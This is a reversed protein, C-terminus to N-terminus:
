YGTNAHCPILAFVDGGGTMAKTTHGIERRLSQISVTFALAGCGFNAMEARKNGGGVLWLSAPDFPQLSM